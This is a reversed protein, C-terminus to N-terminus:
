EQELELDDLEAEETADEHDTDEQSDGHKPPRHDQIRELHKKLQRDLKDIAADISVVLDKSQSKANLNLHKGNLHAEVIRWNRETSLVIRVSTLKPYEVELKAIREEAYRKLEDDVDVHRGSVIVEM